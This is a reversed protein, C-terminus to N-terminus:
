VSMVVFNWNWYNKKKQQHLVFLVRTRKQLLSHPLSFNCYAGHWYLIVFRQNGITMRIGNVSLCRRRYRNQNKKIKEFNRFSFHIFYFSVSISVSLLCDWAIRVMEDVDIMLDNGDWEDRFWNKNRIFFFNSKKNCKILYKYMIPLVHYM